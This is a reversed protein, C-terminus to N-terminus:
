LRGKRLGGRPDSRARVLIEAIVVIDRREESWGNAKVIDGFYRQDHQGIGIWTPTAFERRICCAPTAYNFRVAGDGGRYIGCRVMRAAPNKEFAGVFRELYTPFMDDDDDFFCLLDGTAHQIGQNRAYSASARLAHRYVRIRPDDFDYDGTRANDVVILEWHPHTQAVIQAVTRHITHPRRYTAMIISVLPRYSGTM